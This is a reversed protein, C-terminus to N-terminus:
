YSREFPVSRFRGGEGLILSDTLKIGLIEGADALRRTFVLDEGSPTLDSSPHNHAVVISVANALLAPAYVGRPEATARSIGGQYAVTYGTARSRGDLFLVVMVERPEREFVRHWLFQAVSAPRNLAVPDGEYLAVDERVLDLRYRAIGAPRAAARSM